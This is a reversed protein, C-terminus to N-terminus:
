EKTKVDNKADTEISNTEENKKFIKSFKNEFFSQIKDGKKVTYYFIFFMIVILVFLVIYGIVSGSYFLFKILETFLSTSAITIIRTILAMSVFFGLSMTTLGAVFCLIDDPFFPLLFIMTFMIKDKGKIMKFVKDIQEQGIIWVVLKLGFKRGILFAIVSGMIIGAYSLLSGWLTGFLINGVSVTIVGPIPIAIVQLIQIIVFVFSSYVGKEKIFDKLGEMTSINDWFGSKELIIFLLSFFLAFIILTVMLRFIMTNKFYGSILAVLFTIGLCSFLIDKVLKSIMTLEYLFYTSLACCITLIIINIIYKKSIKM